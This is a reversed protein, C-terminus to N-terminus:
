RRVRFFMQGPDTATYPSVAGPVDTYPGGVNTASQLTGAWSWTLVPGTPGQSIFLPLGYKLAIIGNNSDLAFIRAGAVDFAVAGTGNINDNDAGFFEQDLLVVNNTDAAVDVLRLNSPTDMTGINAVLGRLTDVGINFGTPGTLSLQVEHSSTALDYFVKVLPFDGSSTAWFTNSGGAALGLGAFGALQSTVDVVNPTFTLGDTTTFVVVQTGNRASALLRTNVGSGTVSLTDGIRQGVPSDPGYAITAMTTPADDAWRYITFGGGTGTNALNCAYVAGDEAVGVMLIPFTEGAQGGVGTMNLNTVTAGTDANLVMISPTGARNVLLLRKTVPNFALGRQNNDTTLYTRSGPPLQWLKSSIPTLLSPLLGVTVVSSTVSGAANTVVVDYDGAAATTINTLGLAAKTAGPVAMGGLRWQYKLPASGNASTALTYFGGTLVNTNGIPETVIAPPVAALFHISQVQIGNNPIIGAIMGAGIDTAGIINANAVNPAPFPVSASVVPSTPDTITFVKLNQPSVANATLTASIFKEGQQESYKTGATQNDSTSVSITGLLTTNTTALNFGIRRLNPSGSNKGYVADNTGDFTIGKALDGASTGTPLSFQIPTFNTGDATTFIAFTGSSSGSVAIQTNTGAGRIDASDGYRNTVNGSGPNAPGFAVYPELNGGTTLGDNESDWRYIKFWNAPSASNAIQLNFAYVVGDDAVRVQDILLTGGAVGTMNFAGIASGDVGSVANVSNPSRTSWLVNSTVRNIAIGRDNDGTLSLGGTGAPITWKNSLVLTFPQAPARLVCLQCAAVALVGARALWSRPPLLRAYINSTTKM